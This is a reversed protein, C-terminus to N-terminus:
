TGHSAEDLQSRLWARALRWDGEVTGVSVELTEAVEASTMGAFFRLVVVMGQRENLVLLREIAEDLALVDLGRRDFDALVEDLPV